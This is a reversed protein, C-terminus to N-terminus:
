TPESVPKRGYVAYDAPQRFWDNIEGPRFGSEPQDLRCDEDTRIIRVAEYGRTEALFRSLDPPLPRQHTPDYHFTCAGVVLNEPNPTEFLIVGGPALAEFAADLLAVLDNFALHEIIHFGTVAGLSEPAAQKLHAIADGVTVDFGAAQAEGAMAANLDVGRAPVNNQALLSLWEGRGCGVDLVPLGAMVPDALRFLDLYRELRAKIEFPAGRFRNEFALYLATDRGEGLAEIEAAPLAPSQATTKDILSGLRRSEEAWQRRIAVTEAIARDRDEVMERAMDHAEGARAEAELVQQELRLMSRRIEGLRANLALVLDRHHLDSAAVRRQLRRNTMGQRRLEILPGLLRRLWPKRMARDLLWARRLGPVVVGRAEGEPSYRLSGILGVPSLHAGRLAPLFTALGSADADRGLMARYAASVLAQEDLADFDELRFGGGPPIPAVESAPEELFRLSVASQNHRTAAYPASFDPQPGVAKRIQALINDIDDGHQAIDM